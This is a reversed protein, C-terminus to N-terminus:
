FYAFYLGVGWGILHLITILWYVLMYPRKDNKHRLQRQAIFAGPWGGLAEFLHLRSEPIRPTQKLRRSNKKAISKDRAYMIYTVISVIFYLLLVALIITRTIDSTIFNLIAEM